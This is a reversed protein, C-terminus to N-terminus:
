VDVAEPRNDRIGQSTKRSIKAIERREAERRTRTAKARNELRKKANTKNEKFYEPYERRYYRQMQIDLRDFQATDGDHYAELLAITQHYHRQRGAGRATHEMKPRSAVEPAAERESFKLADNIKKNDPTLSIEEEAEKEEVDEWANAEVHPRVLVPEDMGETSSAGVM